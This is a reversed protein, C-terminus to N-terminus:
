IRAGRSRVWNLVRNRAAAYEPTGCIYTGARLARAPISIEAPAHSAIDLLVSDNIRECTATVQATSCAALALMLAVALLPKM